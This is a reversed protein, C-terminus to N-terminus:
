VIVTKRRQTRARSTMNARDHGTSQPVLSGPTRRPSTGSRRRWEAAVLDPHLRSYTRVPVPIACRRPRFTVRCDDQVRRERVTLEQGAGHGGEAILSDNEMKTSDGRYKSDDRKEEKEGHFDPLRSRETASIGGDSTDVAEDGGSVATCSTGLGVSETGPLQRVSLETHTTRTHKTSDVSLPEYKETSLCGTGPWSKSQSAVTQPQGVEDRIRDVTQLKVSTSGYENENDMTQTHYAGCATVSNSIKQKHSNLQQQTEIMETRIAELLEVNLSKPSREPEKNYGKCCRCDSYKGVLKGSNTTDQLLKGASLSSKRTPSLATSTPRELSDLMAKDRVIASTKVDDDDIDAELGNNVLERGIPYGLTASNTPDGHEAFEKSLPREHKNSMVNRNSDGHDFDEPSSCQTVQRTSTSGSQDSHELRELETAMAIMLLRCLDEQDVLSRVTEEIYQKDTESPRWKMPKGESESNTRVVRERTIHETADREYSRTQSPSLDIRSNQNYKTSPLLLGTYAALLPMHSLLRCCLQHNPSQHRSTTVAELWDADVCACM